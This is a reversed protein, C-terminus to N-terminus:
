CLDITGKTNSFTPIAIAPEYVSVSVNESSTGDDDGNGNKTAINGFDAAPGLDNGNVGCAQKAHHHLAKRPSSDLGNGAADLEDKKVPSAAAAAAASVDSEEALGSSAHSLLLKIVTYVISFLSMFASIIFITTWNKLLQSNITQLIIQPVSESIIEIIQTHMQLQAYGYYFYPEFLVVLKTTGILPSCCIVLWTTTANSRGSLLKSLECFRSFPFVITWLENHATSGNGERPQELKKLIANVTYGFYLYPPLALFIISVVFIATNYFDSTTLYTIDSAVDIIGMIVEVNLMLFRLLKSVFQNEDARLIWKALYLAALVLATAIVCTVVIFITTISGEFLVETYICEGSGHLEYPEACSCNMLSTGPRTTSVVTGEGSFLYCSVCKAPDNPATCTKCLPFCEEFIIKTCNTGDFAFGGDCVCEYDNNLHAHDWCELCKVATRVRQCSKCQHHDCEACNTGDFVLGPGCDCSVINSFLTTSTANEICTQYCSDSRGAFICRNKCLPHCGIEIIPICSTAGDQITTHDKPCTKCTPQGPEDTYTDPPCLRCSTSGAASYTGPGCPTCYSSSKAGTASFYTGEVCPICSLQNATDQYFGPPCSKCSRGSDVYQGSTCQISVTTIRISEVPDLTCYYNLITSPNYYTKHTLIAYNTGVPVIADVSNVGPITINQIIGGQGNMQAIFMKNDYKEDSKTPQGCQPVGAFMFGDFLPATM